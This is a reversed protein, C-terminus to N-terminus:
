RSDHKQKRKKVAADIILSEMQDVRKDWSNKEAFALRKQRESESDHKLAFDVLEIFDVKSTAIYVLDHAEQVEPNDTSVVPKGAALYEYLKLPSRYFAREDSVYPLLCVQLGKLLSPIEQYLFKGPFYVNKFRKLRELPLANVPWPYTDGIFVFSYQPYQKVASELIPYDLRENISGCYGIRPLPIYQLSPHVPTTMDLAQRFPEPNVASPVRFTNPNLQKKDAYTPPSNAFVLDARDLLRNELSKIVTRKRGRIGATWEDICHYICMAEQFQGILAVHEPKYIWLLFDHFNLKGLIPTLWRKIIWGNVQNVSPFFYRGPILWPPTAVWLNEMLSRPNSGRREKHRLRLDPHRLFHELGAMQEIFLVRYGRKAFCAMVQQRSGWVGEWDSSSFCLIDPKTVESTIM